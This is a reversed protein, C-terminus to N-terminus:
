LEGKMLGRYLLHANTFIELMTRLYTLQNDIVAVEEAAALYKPNAEANAEKTPANTGPATNIAEAYAVSVLADKKVKENLLQDRINALKATAMLFKSAKVESQALLKNDEVPLLEMYENVIKEIQQATNM